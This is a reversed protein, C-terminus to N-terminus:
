LLFYARFDVNEVAKKSRVARAGCDESGFIMGKMPLYNTDKSRWTPVAWVHVM